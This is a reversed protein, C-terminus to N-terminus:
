VSNRALFVEDWSIDIVSEYIKAWVDRIHLCHNLSCAAKFSKPLFVEWYLSICTFYTIIDNRSAIFVGIHVFCQHYCIKMKIWSHQKNKEFDKNISVYNISLSSPYQGQFIRDLRTPPSYISRYHSLRKNWKDEEWKIELTDELINRWVQIPTSNTKRVATWAWVM